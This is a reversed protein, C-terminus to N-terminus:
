GSNKWERHLASWFDIGKKSSDWDIGSKIYQRVDTTHCYEELSERYKKKIAKMFDTYCGHNRLFKELKAEYKM